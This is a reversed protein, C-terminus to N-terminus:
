VEITIGVSKFFQNLAYRLKATCWEACFRKYIAALVIVIIFSAIGQILYNCGHSRVPRSVAFIVPQHLVFFESQIKSFLQFPYTYLLRSILGNNFAMIVIFGCFMLIFGARNWVKQYQIVSFLMGIVACFELLTFKLLKSSFGESREKLYTFLPCIAIGLTYDALRVLPFTHYNIGFYAPFTSRWYEALFRLVFLVFFVM